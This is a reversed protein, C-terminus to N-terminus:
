PRPAQARLRFARPTTGVYRHFVGTFHAQTQYGVRAAVQALPLRTGALLARAKDMRVRTLYEHPSCGVAARFQRAFHFPSLRVLDALRRVALREGYHQDIHDLVTRLRHPALGAGPVAAAVGRQPALMVETM